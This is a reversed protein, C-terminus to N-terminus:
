DLFLEKASRKDDRDKDFRSKKTKKNGDYQTDDSYKDRDSKGKKGKSASM